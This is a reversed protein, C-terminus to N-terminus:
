KAELAKELEFNKIKISVISYDQDKFVKEVTFMDIYPKKTTHSKTFEKIGWNEIQKDM